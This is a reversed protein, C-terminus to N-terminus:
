EADDFLAAQGTLVARGPLDGRDRPEGLVAADVAPLRQPLHGQAVDLVHVGVFRDM